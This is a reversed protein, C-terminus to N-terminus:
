RGLDRLINLYDTDPKEPTAVVPLVIPVSFKIRSVQNNTAQKEGQVGVGFASVIIGVGGKATSKSSVTVAVDFELNQADYIHDYTEFFYVPIDSKGSNSRMTLKPNVLAGQKKAEEQAEKVGSVIAKITETVFEKLEM